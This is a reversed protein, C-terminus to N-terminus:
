CAKNIADLIKQLYPDIEADARPSLAADERLIFGLLTMKNGTTHIGDSAYAPLRFNKVTRLEDGIAAIRRPSLAIIAHDVRRSKPFKCLLVVCETTFLRWPEHWNRGFSEMQKTWFRWCREEEYMANPNGNDECSIRRLVSWMSGARSKSFPVNYEADM